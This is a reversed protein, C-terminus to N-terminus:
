KKGGIKVRTVALIVTLILAKILGDTWEDGFVVIDGLNFFEFVARSVFYNIVFIIFWKIGDRRNM